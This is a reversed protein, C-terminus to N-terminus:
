AELLGKLKRVAEDPATLVPAGAAEQAAERAGVMSFQALMLVDIDALDRAADVILRDHEEERGEKLAVFAGPVHRLTVEPKLGRAEAAHALEAALSPITPEFTALAGIRPGQGLATEIMAEDPKLVPIRADSRAAEIAAGFASCTFLVAEAGADAGFRILAGLRDTFADTLAGAEALDATLALDTLDATRAEPWLRGFAEHIPGQAETVAHILQIRPSPM